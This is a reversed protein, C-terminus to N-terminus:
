VEFKLRCFLDLIGFDFIGFIQLQSKFLPIQKATQRKCNPNRRATSDEGIKLYSKGSEDVPPERM